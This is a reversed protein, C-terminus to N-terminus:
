RFENGYELIYITVNRRGFVVCEDYTPYFLDVIASGDMLAGGTDGAVAEGYVIEGDNSVIYLKSGYPIINPNVAVVGYQALRGTSTLAGADAYYATGSGTLVEKYSRVVGNADTFTQGDGNDTVEGSNSFHDEAPETYSDDSYDYDTDESVDATNSSINKKTGVVMVKDVPEELVESSLETKSNLKGNIYVKEVTALKKGNKGPNRVISDGEPLTKDEKKVTKFKIPQEEDVTLVVTRTIVIESDDEVDEWLAVNMSDYETLEIGLYALAEEVTGAPVKKSLKKGRLDLKISCWDVDNTEAGNDNKAAKVSFGSKKTNLRLAKMTDETHDKFEIKVDSSAVEVTDETKEVLNVDVEEEPANMAVVTAAATLCVTSTLVVAMIKKFGSSKKSYKGSM